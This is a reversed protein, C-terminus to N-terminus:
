GSSISIEDKIWEQWMAATLPFLESMAERAVRLKELEGEKRLASIYKVCVVIVFVCECKDVCVIFDM